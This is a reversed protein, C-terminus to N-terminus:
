VHPLLSRALLRWRDVPLSGPPGEDVVSLAVQDAGAHLHETIRAAITDVDGWAVVADVLRDSLHAIEDESFGMRRLNAAYAGSPATM